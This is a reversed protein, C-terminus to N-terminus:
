PHTHTRGPISGANPPPTHPARLNHLLWPNPQDTKSCTSTTMDGAAFDCKIWNHRAEKSPWLQSSCCGSLQTAASRAWSIPLLEKRRKKLATSLCPFTQPPDLGTILPKCCRPVTRTSKDRDQARILIRQISSHFLLGTDNSLQSHGQQYCFTPSPSSFTLSM